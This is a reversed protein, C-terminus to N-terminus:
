ETTEEATKKEPVKGTNVWDWDDNTMPIWYTM